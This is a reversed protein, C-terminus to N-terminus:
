PWGVRDFIRQAEAANEGLANVNVPDAVIEGFGDIVPNDYPTGEVAPFENTLEPFFRQGEPSLLFELFAIANERNPANAALGAGSINVHAGAGAVPPMIFEVAEGVARDAADDSRKLRGVYYHNVIAVDCEGAAIARVQDTDGGQPVRALNNVIGAAWAEAAEVGATNILAALQSQNYVNGSSRVCIRGEWVPDALDAFDTIEDANVRDPAYAIGRVRTSFGFWAGDPHRLNAPVGELADSLEPAAQFLGAQEARWLRGADVTIVIDAPSREADLRVREILLDGGAEIYNVEIGTAETFAEYVAYDSAYHRATYINVVGANAAEGDASPAPEGCAGLSLAAGAAIMPTLIRFLGAMGIM